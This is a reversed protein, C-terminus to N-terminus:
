GWRARCGTASAQRGKEGSVLNHGGFKSKQSFIKSSSLTLRRMRHRLKKERNRDGREDEQRILNQMLEADETDSSASELYFM